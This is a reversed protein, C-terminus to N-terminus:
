VWWGCGAAGHPSVRVSAAWRTCQPWTTRQTTTVTRRAPLTFCRRCRSRRPVPLAPPYTLGRALALRTCAGVSAQHVRWRWGPARALALRQHVRSGQAHHRTCLPASHSHGSRQWELAQSPHAPPEGRQPQRAHRPWPLSARRSPSPPPASVANSLTAFAHPAARSEFTSTTPQLRLCHLACTPLCDILWAALGRM